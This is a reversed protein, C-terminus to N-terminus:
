VISYEGTAYMTQAASCYIEVKLSQEFFIPQSLLIAGATEVVSPYDLATTVGLSINPVINGGNSVGVIATTGNLILRDGQIIGTYNGQSINDMKIDAKLVGDVTVKMATTGSGGNLGSFLLQTFYGVGTIDLVTTWGSTSKTSNYKKHQTVKDWKTSSQVSGIQKGGM